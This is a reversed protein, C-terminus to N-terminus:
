TSLLNSNNKKRQLSFRFILSFPVWLLFLEYLDSFFHSFSGSVVTGTFIASDESFNAFKRSFDFILSIRESSSSFFFFTEIISSSNEAACLIDETFSRRVFKFACINCSLKALTISAISEVSLIYATQSLNSSVLFLRLM